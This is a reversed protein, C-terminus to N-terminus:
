MGGRWILSSLAEGLGAFAGAKMLIYTLSGLVLLLAVGSSMIFIYINMMPEVPIVANLPGLPAVINQTTFQRMQDMVYSYMAYSIPAILPFVLLYIIGAGLFEEGIRQVLPSPFIVLIAGVVFVAYIVATVLITVVRALSVGVVVLAAGPATMLLVMIVTSVLSILASVIASFPLGAGPTFITSLALAIVFFIGIAIGIWTLTGMLSNISGLYVTNYDAEIREYLIDYYGILGTFVDRTTGTPISVYRNIAPVASILATFARYFAPIIVVVVIMTIVLGTLITRVYDPDIPPHEVVSSLIITIILLVLTAIIGYGFIRTVTEYMSWALDAINTPDTVVPRIEASATHLTGFTDTVTVTARATTIAGPDLAKNIKEECEITYTGSTNIVKMPCNIIGVGEIGFDGSLTIMAQGESYGSVVASIRGTATWNAGYGYLSLAPRPIIIQYGEVPITVNLPINFAGTSISVAISSNESPALRVDHITTCEWEESPNIVLYEEATGLRILVGMATGSGIVNGCVEVDYIPEVTFAGEELSGREIYKAINVRRIDFGVTGFNAKIKSFDLVLTGSVQEKGVYSGNIYLRYVVTYQLAPKYGLAEEIKEGINVEGQLSVVKTFQLEVDVSIIISVGYIIGSDTQNAGSMVSVSTDVKTMITAVDTEIVEPIPRIWKMVKKSVEVDAPLDTQNNVTITHDFSITMDDPYIGIVKGSPDIVILYDKFSPVGGVTTTEGRAPVVSPGLVSVILATLVFVIITRCM